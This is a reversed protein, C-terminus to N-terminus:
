FAAKWQLCDAAGGCSAARGEVSWFAKSFVVQM